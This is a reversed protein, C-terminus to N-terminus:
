RERQLLSCKGLYAPFHAVEVFGKPFSMDKCLLIWDIEEHRLWEAEYLRSYPYIPILSRKLYKGFFPYEYFGQYLVMGMRANAPVNEEVARVATNFLGSNLGQLSVRDLGFIANPGTLPKAMNYFMINSAMGISLIVVVWSLLIFPRTPRLLSALFPALLTAIIVFYRGQYPSWADRGRLGVFYVIFCFIYGVSILLLGGRILDKQRVSRWLQGIFIVPFIFFGLIGFWAYDENVARPYYNLDFLGGEIPIYYKDILYEVIQTRYSYIPVSIKDPVGTLDFTAYLYRPIHVVLDALANKISPQSVGNGSASYFVNSALPNGYHAVNFIYMYSGVLLLATLCWGAWALILRFNTRGMKIWFLLAALGLGPLAMFVMQHTGIALALSIGSLSLLWRNQEQMGLLLLYVMIVFFSSAVLHNQTTTSELLIEPLLAWVLAAFASQIRNWALIRAIGFIAAMAALASLWQPFGALRDRGFFLVTWMIAVQANIPYVQQTYDWTSWPQFNGHQLWYAVRVMHSTMSDYNNPPVKLVLYAGLLYFIGVAVVLLWVSPWERISLWLDKLKFKSYVRSVPEILSPCGNRWWVFGALVAIIFHAVLFFLQSRLLNLTGAIESVLVVNAFSLLYLSLLFAPMNRLRMLATIFISFTFVLIFAILFLGFTYVSTM